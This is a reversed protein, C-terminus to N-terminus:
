CYSSGDTYVTLDYSLNNMSSMCPGVIGGLYNEVCALQENEWPSFGKFFMRTKDDLSYQKKDSKRFLNCYIEFRYFAGIIRATETDSLPAFEPGDTRPKPFAGWPDSQAQMIFREM